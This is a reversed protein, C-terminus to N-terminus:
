PTPRCRYTNGGAVQLVWGDVGLRILQASDDATSLWFTRNVNLRARYTGVTVAIDTRGTRELVAYFEPGIPEWTTLYPVFKRLAGTTPTDTRVAQNCILGEPQPAGAGALAAILAASLLVQEM